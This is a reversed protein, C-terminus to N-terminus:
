LFLGMTKRWIQEYSCMSILELLFANETNATRTIIVKWQKAEWLKNTALYSQMRIPNIQVVLPMLEICFITRRFSFFFIANQQSQKVSFILRLWDMAKWWTYRWLDMTFRSSLILATFWCMIEVNCELGVDLMRSINICDCRAILAISLNRCSEICVYRYTWSFILFLEIHKSWWCQYMALHSAYWILLTKVFWPINTRVCTVIGM